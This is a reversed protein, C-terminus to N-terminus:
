WVINPPKKGKKVALINKAALIAMANRAEYTASATHPTLVVNKLKLLDKTIRPENEYVDLAAGAIKKNKLAQVLAKEDVVAGRSTNILYATKKMLKLEKKSILHYTSKLLPVHLTVFDSKKLLEEKSLFKASYEKEFKKNRSISNYVARMGMGKVAKEAVKSGIRGLGIIGITKGELQPGLLLEPEWQKYKGARVFCDSEPIRRAISLLLAFTHEAVAETLVGPTNTVPINLEKCASVAINDYGVAYNAVIKLKPNAKLIEKDIKETLLCLLADCWKVGKILERRPIAKNKPYVRVECEKRLLKIGAEPIKRTVFVKFAM